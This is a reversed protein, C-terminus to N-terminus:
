DTILYRVIVRQEATSCLATTVPVGVLLIVNVLLFFGPSTCNAKVLIAFVEERSTDSVHQSVESRLRKFISPFMLLQDEAEDLYDSPQGGCHTKSM